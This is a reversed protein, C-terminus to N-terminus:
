TLDGGLPPPPRLVGLRERRGCRTCAAAPDVAPEDSGHVTSAERPSM